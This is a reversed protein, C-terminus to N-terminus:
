TCQVLIMQQSTDKNLWRSRQICEALPAETGYRTATDYLKIGLRLAATTAKSSFGGNHSLGLGLWPLVQGNNLRLVSGLDRPLPPSITTTVMIDSAAADALLEPPPTSSSSPSEAKQRVSCDENEKRKM